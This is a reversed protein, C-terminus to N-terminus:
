LRGGHPVGDDAVSRLVEAVARTIAARGGNAEAMAAAAEMEEIRRGSHLRTGDLFGSLSARDLGALTTVLHDGFWEGLGAREAARLSEIMVGTLGKVLMSRLLKRAAATGAQGDLVELPLGAETLVEALADAGDGALLLPTQQAGRRVPAMIAVDVFRLGADAAIAALREKEHPGSTACDAHIAGHPAALVAADLADRSHAASTVALIIDAEAVAEEPGGALTLGEIAGTVAPDWGTVVAPGSLATAFMRGAEGLGLIAIRVSM